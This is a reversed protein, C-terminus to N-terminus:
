GISGVSAPTGVTKSLDSSAVVALTSEGTREDTLILKGTVEIPESHNVVAEKGGMKAMLVGIRDSGGLLILATLAVNLVPNDSFGLNGLVGVNGVIGLVIGLIGALILYVRRSSTDSVPSRLMVLIGTVIRDIAFACILLVTIVTLPEQRTYTPAWSPSPSTQAWGALPYGLVALTAAVARFRSTSSMFVEKQEIRM